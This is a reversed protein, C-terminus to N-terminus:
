TSMLIAWIDKSGLKLAERDQLAGSEHEYEAQSILAKAVGINMVSPLLFDYKGGTSPVLVEVNIKEV